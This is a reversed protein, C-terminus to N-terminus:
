YQYNISELVSHDFTFHMMGDDWVYESLMPEKKVRARTLGFEELAKSESLDERHIVFRVGNDEAFSWDTSEIIEQINM